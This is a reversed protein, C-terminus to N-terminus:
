FALLGVLWLYGGRHQQTQCQRGTKVRDLWSFVLREVTGSTGFAATGSFFTGSTIGGLGSLGGGAPLTLALMSSLFIIAIKAVFKLHIWGGAYLQCLHLLFRKAFYKM